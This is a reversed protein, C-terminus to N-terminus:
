NAHIAAGAPSVAAWSPISAGITDGPKADGSYFYLLHGAYTVRGNASGIKSADLGAGTTPAGNAVLAPWTNACAGTCVSTAGQDKEFLYLTRGNSDVLIDGLTSDNRVQVSANAAAPAPSSITFRVKVVNSIATLGADPVIAPATGQVVYVTLTSPGSGFAAKGIQWTNRTQTLGHKVTGVGNIQFLGALNTSPGHFSTGPMDPTTSLMVVLGPAGADPGPQFTPATPNNFFPKYGAEPSLLANAAKNRATLAIDVVFGAGDRGALDSTGPSLVTLKVPKSAAKPPTGYAAAAPSAAAALAILATAAAAVLGYIFRHRGRQHSSRTTRAPPFM